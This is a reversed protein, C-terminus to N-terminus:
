HRRRARRRRGEGRVLRKPPMGKTTRASVRQRFPSPTKAKPTQPRPTKVPTKNFYSMDYVKGPTDYVRRAALPIPAAKPPSAADLFADFKAQMRKVATAPPLRVPTRTRIVPSYPTAIDMAVPSRAKTPTVYPAARAAPMWGFPGCQGFAVRVRGNPYPRQPGNHPCRKSFKRRGIHHV